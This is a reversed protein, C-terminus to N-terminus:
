RQRVPGAPATVPMLFRGSSTQEAATASCITWSWRTSASGHSGPSRPETRARGGTSRPARRPTPRRIAATGGVACASTRSDSSGHPRAVAQVASVLTARCGPTSRARHQRGRGRPRRHVRRERAMVVPRGCWVSSRTRGSGQALYWVTDRANAPLDSIPPSATPETPTQAPACATARTGSSLPMPAQPCCRGRRARGRCAGGPGPCSRGTWARGQDTRRTSLTAAHIGGWM